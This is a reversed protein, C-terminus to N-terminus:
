QHNMRVVLKILMVSETITGVSRSYSVQGVGKAIKSNRDENIKFTKENNLLKNLSIPM